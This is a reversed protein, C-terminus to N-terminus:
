SPYPYILVQWIFIILMLLGGGFQVATAAGWGALGGLSAKLAVRWNRFEQYQGLLVGAAYGAIGGFMSGLVPVPVVFTFLIFGAVAGLAGYIMSRRTAGFRKAGMHTLWLDATGSVLAILTLSSFTLWDIAAFGELVAYALISVWILIMGPLLPLLIGALGVLILAVALGFALANLLIM